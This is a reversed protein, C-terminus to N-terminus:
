VGDYSDWGDDRGSLEPDPAERRRRTARRRPAARRAKSLMAGLEDIAKVKAVLGGIFGLIDDLGTGQGPKMGKAICLNWVKDWAEVRQISDISDTPGRIPNKTAKTAMTAM